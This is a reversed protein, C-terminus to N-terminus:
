ARIREDEYPPEDRLADAAIAEGFVLEEMYARREDPDAMLEALRAASQELIRRRRAQEALEDLFDSVSAGRQAALETFIQHARRSVRVTTSEHPM